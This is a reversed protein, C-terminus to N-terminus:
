VQESGLIDDRQECTMDERLEKIQDDYYILLKACCQSAPYSIEYELRSVNQQFTKQLLYGYWDLSTYIIGRHACNGDTANIPGNLLTLILLLIFECSRKRDVAM